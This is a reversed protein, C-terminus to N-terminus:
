DPSGTVAGERNNAGEPPSTVTGSGFEGHVLERRSKVGLKRYVKRLHYDVTNASIFLRAGIEPNTAGTAALRAIQDEQPTLDDRTDDRRRRATAGTALLEARTRQEFAHAGESEFVELAASLAVRADRRRLQRRLWEGYLLRTRAAQLAAGAADLHDASELYSAEAEADTPALLARCRALLGLDFPSQNLTARQALWEIRETVADARGIRVHAEAEDAVRMSAFVANDLLSEIRIAAAAQYNGLGLELVTLGYKIMKEVFGVGLARADSLMRAAEARVEDERGYWSWVILELADAPSAQGLLQALGNLENAIDVATRLSGLRLEVDCLYSLAQTVIFWAGVDRGIDLVDTAIARVADDDGLAFGIWCALSLQLPFRRVEPDRRIRDLALRRLAIADPVEDTFLSALADTLVDISTPDGGSAPMSQIARAVMAPPVSSWDGSYVAMVLGDILTERATTVDFDRLQTAAAVMYEAAEQRADPSTSEGARSAEPVFTIAARLRQGQAVLLPAVLDPEALDIFQKARSYNGATLSAAAAGLFRGARVGADPSLQAARGFLVASSGYSGSTQARAAASALESAVEEDPDVVAVARHWAHRDPERQVDTNEALAAHARRRDHETAGQYVASRVIPHQFEIRPGSRVLGATEAPGAAGDECGLWRAAARVLDPDRTPDAAAVLLFTQADDPLARVRRLFRTELDHDIGYPSPLPEIGARQEASLERTFELLSLPNGSADEVVRRRVHAALHGDASQELLAAAHEASLPGVRLSPLEEFSDRDTSSDRVAVLFGVGDMSLRRGVFGIVFASEEDIWQADDVVIIVGQDVAANSLLSLVALGVMFRDPVIEDAVGFVSRLARAQPAPLADIGEAFRSLIQHLAAHGLAMESEVGRVKVITLDSADAVAEDLLASKGIGAEGRVVLTSSRGSRVADLVRALANCEETRGVLADRGM